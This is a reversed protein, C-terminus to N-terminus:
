QNMVHIDYYEDYLGLCADMGANTSLAKELVTQWSGYKAYLSDATPGEENGYTELNSKKVTAIKVPDNNYSELRIENRRKSVTRAITEIDKGEGLLQEILRYLQEINKHYQEREKRAVAVAAPDTWDLYNVYEKLRSSEQNPSFGYVADPNVIADKLVTYNEAPNHVYRFAPCKTLMVIAEANGTMGLDIHEARVSSSIKKWEGNSYRYASLRSDAKIEPSWLSVTLSKGATGGPLTIRVVAVAEEAQGTAYSIASQEYNAAYDLMATWVTAKGDVVVDNVGSAVPIVHRLKSAIVVANNSYEPNTKAQLPLIFSNFLLVISMVVTCLGFSKRSNPRTSAVGSVKKGTKTIGFM